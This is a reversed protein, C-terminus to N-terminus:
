CNLWNMIIEPANLSKTETWKQMYSRFYRATFVEHQLSPSIITSFFLKLHLCLTESNLIEYM